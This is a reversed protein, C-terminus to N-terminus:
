IAKETYEAKDWGFLYEAKWNNQAFGKLNDWEYKRRWIQQAAQEWDMRAIRDEIDSLQDMFASYYHCDFEIHIVEFTDGKDSVADVALDFGWKQKTQLLWAVQPITKRLQTLQDRAQESYNFRHLILAHDVVVGDLDLWQQQCCLHNLCDSLEIGNLQYLLREADCLEFGDKDYYYFDDKTLQAVFDAGQKITPNTSVWYDHLKM